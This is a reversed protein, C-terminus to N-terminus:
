RMERFLANQRDIYEELGQERMTELAHEWEALADGDGIICKIFADLAQSTSFQDTSERPSLLFDYPRDIQTTNDRCWIASKRALVTNFNGFRLDNM